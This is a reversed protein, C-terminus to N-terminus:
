FCTKKRKKKPTEESDSYSTSEFQADEGEKADLFEGESEENNVDVLAAKQPGTTYAQEASSDDNDVEDNDFDCLIDRAVKGLRPDPALLLRQKITDCKRLDNLSCLIVPDYGMGFVKEYASVANRGRGAHRNIVGMVHGQMMTWNPVKGNQRETEEQNSILRKVLTTANSRVSGQDSDAVTVISSNMSKLDLIVQATFERGNWTQIHLIDPYGILGFIQNLEFAAYRSM